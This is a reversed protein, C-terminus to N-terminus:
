RPKMTLAELLNASSYIGSLPVPKDQGPLYVATFPISGVQNLEKLKSWGAASSSTLDAKLTIVGGEKLSDTTAKDGFVLAEVAHCNACWAATFKVVVPKGSARANELTEGSYTTWAFPKDTVRLTFLLAPVVVGLALVSSIIVPRPRPSIAITRVVLFVGAAAIIAFIIWWAWKERFAEGLLPQAFFVAMALLMIAMVQKMLNSWPGTRPFKRALQPFGSLILYPLAMGVGVLTLMLMGVWPSQNAAWALAAFFLGFTCPTSLVATLIGFLFNGTYTDHRPSLNYVSTPLAFEFFGFMSVALVSLVIAVGGAFYPNSFFEGWNTSKTVFVLVGLLAFTAVIGLSFVAGLLLCKGRHHQSTEYFGIAKLPLVPLVCPVANFLVGVVVSLMLIVGISDLKLSKGFISYEFGSAAPKSSTSTPLTSVAEEGFRIAPWQSPDFAAFLEANAPAVRQSIPIITTAIEFPVTEPAFCVQDDCIQLTVEGRLVIPGPPAAADVQLPVYTVVKNSYIDLTGLLPYTKREGKAYVAPAFQVPTSSGPKSDVGVVEFPVFDASSPTRSQAHFGPKITVVVAILAQQGPQLSDFNLSANVSYRAAESQPSGQSQAVTATQGSLALAFALMAFAFVRFLFAFKPSFRASARAHSLRQGPSSLEPADAGASISNPRRDFVSIMM